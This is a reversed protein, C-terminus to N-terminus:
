FSQLSILAAVILSLVGFGILVPDVVPAQAAKARVRAKQRHSANHAALRRTKSDYANQM